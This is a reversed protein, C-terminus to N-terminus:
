DEMNKSKFTEEIACIVGLRAYFRFEEPSLDDLFSDVAKDAEAFVSELAEHFAGIIEDIM